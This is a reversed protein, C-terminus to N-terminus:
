AERVVMFNVLIQFGIFLLIFLTFLQTSNPITLITFSGLVALGLAYLGLLRRRSGAEVIWVGSVPILMFLGLAGFFICPAIDLAIGAGLTAAGALLTGGVWNARVRQDRNLAHRGLPHLKLMLDGLPSAAWSMFVFVLYLILLGNIYPEFEPYTKGLPRLLKATIWLGFIVFLQRRGRLKSMFFIYALLLRYLPNRAKLAHVVGARADENDPDIGLSAKFHEIAKKVEGRHLCAWGMSAHSHSDEPDRLLAGEVAQVAEKKRGLQRLAFARRNIADINEPDLALAREAEELAENWNKGNLHLGALLSRYDADDPDLRIAEGIARHALAKQGGDAYCCALIYHAFPVGADLSVARVAARIAEPHKGQKNFTIALLSYAHANEPDAAIIRRLEAEAEAYRNHSLLFQVRVLVPHDM